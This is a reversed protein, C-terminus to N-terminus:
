QCMDEISFGAQIPKNKNIWNAASSKWKSMKNKGVMWNKSTYFHYFNDAEGQSYNHGAFYQRIMDHTPPTFKSRRSKMLENVMLELQLVRGKLDEIETM